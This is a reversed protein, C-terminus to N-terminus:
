PFGGTLEPLLAFRNTRSVTKKIEIRLLRRHAVNREGMERGCAAQCGRRPLQSDREIGRGRRNFHVTVGMGGCGLKKIIRYHSITQGIEPM